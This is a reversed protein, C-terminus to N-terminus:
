NGLGGVWAGVSRFVLRPNQSYDAGPVEGLGTLGWGNRKFDRNTGPAHFGVMWDEASTDSGFGGGPTELEVRFLISAHELVPMSELANAWSEFLPHMTDECPTHRPGRGLRPVFYWAGAPTTIGLRAYFYRLRPWPSAPLLTSEHEGPWFLSGDFVGSIDLSVLAFRPHMRLLVPDQQELSLRVDRCYQLDSLFNSEVLAAALSERDKLHLSTDCDREDPGSTRPERCLVLRSVRNVEPLQRGDHLLKVLRYFRRWKESYDEVEGIELTMNRTGTEENVDGSKEDTLLQFLCFIAGTFAENFHQVQTNGPKADSGISPVVLAFNLYRIYARRIPTVIRVFNEMDEDSSSIHLRSFTHQEIARQWRTSLISFPALCTPPRGPLFSVIINIIEEPLNDM